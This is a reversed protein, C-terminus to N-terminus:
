RLASQMAAGASAASTSALLPLVDPPQSIHLSRSSAQNLPTVCNRDIEASVSRMLLSVSVVLRDAGKVRVVAGTLGELPGSEVQVMQGAQLYPYPEAAVGSEVVRRVALIEEEAVPHPAKGVGVVCNVGPTILVPLRANIDFRCFLYCPFLPVEVTKIRDSWKRKAISIPLFVEYGKEQLQSQVHKEFRPRVHLAYWLDKMQAPGEMVKESVLLWHEAPL